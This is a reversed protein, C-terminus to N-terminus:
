AVLISKYIATDATIIDEHVLFGIRYSPTNSYQDLILIEDDVSVFYGRVYYVGSSITFVSATSSADNAVTTAFREGAGIFSNGFSLADDILM